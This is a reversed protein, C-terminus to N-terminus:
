FIDVVEFSGAINEWWPTEKKLLGVLLQKLNLLEEESTAVRVELQQSHNDLQQSTM